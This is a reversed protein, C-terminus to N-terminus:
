MNNVRFEPTMSPLCRPQMRVGGVVCYCTLQHVIDGSEYSTASMAELAVLAGVRRHSKLQRAVTLVRELIMIVTSVGDQPVNVWSPPSLVQYEQGVPWRPPELM